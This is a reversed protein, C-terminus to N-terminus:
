EIRLITKKNREIEFDMMSKLRFEPINKSFYQYYFDNIYVGYDNLFIMKKFENEDCKERALKIPISEDIDLGLFNSEKDFKIKKV